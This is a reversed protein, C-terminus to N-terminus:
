SRIDTQEVQSKNTQRNTHGDSKRHIQIQTKRDTHRKYLQGIQKDAM